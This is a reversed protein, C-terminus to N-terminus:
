STSIEQQNQARCFSCIRIDDVRKKKEKQKINKNVKNVKNNEHLVSGSCAGYSFINRFLMKIRRRM